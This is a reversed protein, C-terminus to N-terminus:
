KVKMESPVFSLKPLKYDLKELTRLLVRAVLLNRYWKKNAPIVYWPAHPASTKRIVDEYAEMYQDWSEREKLDGPDFKWLKEKNDLREQLRARQEDKSIHLFFKVIVTGSDALMREFNAIHEYRKMWVPKPVLDHVRVVLVDEYHSRNFIGFQGKAPVEQHVRWLFDQALEAETPRKFSTVKCGSPNIGSFVHDVTGDKGATDMAQLVILLARRKDVYFKEQLEFLAKLDKATDAEAQVRGTVESSDDPDFDKLRFKSGDEIRYEKIM